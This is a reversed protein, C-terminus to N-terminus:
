KKVFTLTPKKPNSADMTFIYIAQDDEQPIEAKFNPPNKGNKLFLTDGAKVLEKEQKNGAGMNFKAWAGDAVKFPQKGAFVKAELTYIGKGQYKLLNADQTDGWGTQLLMGRVYLPVNYPPEDDAAINAAPAEEAAAATAETSSSTDSSTCAALLSFTLAATLGTLISYLKRM